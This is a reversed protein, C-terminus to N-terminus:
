RMMTLSRSRRRGIKTPLLPRVSASVSRKKCRQVCFLRRANLEGRHVHPLGEAGRERVMQWLYTDDKILEVDYVV